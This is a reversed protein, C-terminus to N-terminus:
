QRIRFHDVYFRQYALDNRLNDRRVTGAAPNFFPRVAPAASDFTGDQSTTRPRKRPKILYFLLMAALAIIFAASIVPAGGADLPNALAGELIYIGGCLLTVVLFSALGGFTHAIGGRVVLPKSPRVGLIRHMVGARM